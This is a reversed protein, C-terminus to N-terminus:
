SRRLEGEVSNRTRKDRREGFCHRADRVDRQSASSKWTRTRYTSESVTVESKLREGDMKPDDDSKRWPVAVFMELNSRDWREQYIGDEWM